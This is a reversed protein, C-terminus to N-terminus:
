FNSFEGSRPTGLGSCLAFLILQIGVLVEPNLVVQNRERPNNNTIFLRYKWDLLVPSDLLVDFRVPFANLLDHFIVLFYLFLAFMAKDTTYLFM